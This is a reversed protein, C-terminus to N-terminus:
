SNEWEKIAKSEQENPLRHNWRSRGTQEVVYWDGHRDNFPRECVVTASKTQLASKAAESLRSVWRFRDSGSGHAEGSKIIESM